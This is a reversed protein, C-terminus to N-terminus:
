GAGPAPFGLAIEATLPAVARMAPLDSSFGADGSVSLLADEPVDQGHEFRVQVNCAPAGASFAGGKWDTAAGGYDWGFGSLTFPRGNATEVAAIDAGPKLGGPLAWAPDLSDAYIGSITRTAAPGEFWRVVARKAPDSAFLYSVPIEMGEPGGEVGDTVNTAGFLTVLDSRTMGAKFPGACTLDLSPETAAAPAAVPSAAAPSPTADADPAAAPSCGAIGAALLLIILRM